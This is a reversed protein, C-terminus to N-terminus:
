IEVLKKKKQTKRVEANIIFLFCTSGGKDSLIVKNRRGRCVSRPPITFVFNSACILKTPLTCFKIPVHVQSLSRIQEEGWNEKFFARTDGNKYKFIGGIKCAGKTAFRLFIESILLWSDLHSIYTVFGQHEDVQVTINRFWRFLVSVKM